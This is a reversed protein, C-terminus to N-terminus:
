RHDIASHHEAWGRFEGYKNFEPHTTSVHYTENFAEMAVKWNCEFIVWKRWRCRMNELQFPDLMTAAPELYERLPGANSDINVWLFGGWEGVAVTGLSTRDETLAGQQVFNARVFRQNLVAIQMHHLIQWLAAVWALALLTEVAYAPDDSIAKFERECIGALQRGLDAPDLPTHQSTYAIGFGYGKSLNTATLVKDGLRPGPPIHIQVEDLKVNREEAILELLQGIEPGGELLGSRQRALCHVRTSVQM